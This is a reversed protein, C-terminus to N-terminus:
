HAATETLRRDLYRREADTTVLALADQYATVAENRRDLRRLLDARTAPLLHYGDLAGSAALADVIVLGAEPGDAMAVAVARNLEVVPNPALRSLQGYLLAIQTWDTSAADPAIAHCAAIAAQVQYGGPRGRQLAADLVAIGEDLQSRNWRSRDQEDLPVLEGHADVRAPRRGDHLLMLALLGLAEPSDPTLAALLRALRIAEATLDAKVLENGSSAAYGENFLLYLVALLATTRGPLLEPPPVRFPIIAHRIKEKARFLRQGMTRESVRFAHAIEATRLGALSRLTLAVQAELSLAPHCCTYMLQLRDDPADGRAQDTDVTAALERLKSTEVAGRRLRDLARNRATTTLWGGPRQPVGDRPWRELAQAFADQACEEALTWDGTLRILTAVIRGWEDAYVAAVTETV